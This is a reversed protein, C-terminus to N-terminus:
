AIVCYCSGGANAGGEGSPQAIIEEVEDQSLIIQPQMIILIALIILPAPRLPPSPTDPAPSALKKTGIFSKLPTSRARLVECYSVISQSYRRRRGSCSGMEPAQGELFSFEHWKTQPMYGRGQSDMKRPKQTPRARFVNPKLINELTPDNKHTKILEHQCAFRYNEFDSPISAIEHITDDQSLIVDLEPQPQMLSIIIIILLPRAPLFNTPTTSTAQVPTPRAPRTSYPKPRIDQGFCEVLSQRSWNSKPKKSVKWRWPGRLKPIGGENDGITGPHGHHGLFLRTSPSSEGGANAVVTSLGPTRLSLYQHAPPYNEPTAGQGSGSPPEEFDSPITTVIKYIEDQTLIQPQM